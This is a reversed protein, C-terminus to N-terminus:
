APLTAPRHAVALGFGGTAWLREGDFILREVRGLEAAADPDDPQPLTLVGCIAATATEPDIEVLLSHDETERYLAAFARPQGGFAGACLATLNTVGSVRRFTRGGDASVVLGREADGLLVVNGSAAVLPAEGSAVERAPSVLELREWSSGGDSSLALKAGDRTLIAVPEDSSSM